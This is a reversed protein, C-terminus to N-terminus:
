YISPIREVEVTSLKVINIHICTHTCAILQSSCVHDKIGVQECSYRLTINRERENEEIYKEIAIDVLKNAISLAVRLVPSHQRNFKIYKM